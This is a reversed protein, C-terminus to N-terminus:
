DPAARNRCAALAAARDLVDQLEEAIVEPPNETM